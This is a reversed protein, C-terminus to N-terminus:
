PVTPVTTWGGSPFVCAQGDIDVMFSILDSKWTVSTLLQFCEVLLSMETWNLLCFGHMSGQITM